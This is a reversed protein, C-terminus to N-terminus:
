FRYNILSKLKGKSDTKTTCVPVSAGASSSKVPKSEEFEFNMEEFPDVSKSKKLCHSEKILNEKVVKLQDQMAITRNSLFDLELLDKRRLQLSGTSVGSDNSSSSDRNYVSKCPISASRKIQIIPNSLPTEINSEKTKTSKSSEKSLCSSSFKSFYLSDDVRSLGHESSSTPIPRQNLSLDSFSNISTANSITPTNVLTRTPSVVKEEIVEFNDLHRSSDMSSSRQRVAPNLFEKKIDHATNSGSTMLRRRPYPSNTESICHYGSSGHFSPNILGNQKQLPLTPTSQSKEILEKVCISGNNFAESEITIPLMPLYSQSVNEHVPSQLPSSPQSNLKPFSYRLSPEMVLYDGQKPSPKPPLKKCSHGCKLCCKSQNEAVKDSKNDKNTEKVATAMDPKQLLERSNEYLKLSETYKLNVYSFAPKPEQQIITEPKETSADLVVQVNAYQITKSKTTSSSDEMEDGEKEEELTARISYNKSPTECTYNEGRCNVFPMKGEGDLKVQLCIYLNFM